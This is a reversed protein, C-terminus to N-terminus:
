SYKCWEEDILARGGAGAALVPGVAVTVAAALSLDKASGARHEYRPALYVSCHIVAVHSLSGRPYRPDHCGVEDM